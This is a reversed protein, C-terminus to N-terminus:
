SMLHSGIVYCLQGHRIQLQPLRGDHAPTSGAHFCPQYGHCGSEAETVAPRTVTSCVSVHLM